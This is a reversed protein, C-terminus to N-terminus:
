LMFCGGEEHYKDMMQKIEDEHTEFYETLTKDVISSMTTKNGFFYKDVTYITRLKHLIKADLTLSTSKRKSIKM